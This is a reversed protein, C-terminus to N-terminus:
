PKDESMLYLAIWVTLSKVYKKEVVPSIKVAWGLTTCVVSSYIVYKTAVDLYLYINKFSFPYM